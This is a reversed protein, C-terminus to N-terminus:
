RGGKKTTKPLPAAKRAPKETKEKETPSPWDKSPGHQRELAELEIDTLEVPKGGPSIVKGGARVLSAPIWYAAM